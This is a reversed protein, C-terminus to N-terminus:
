WLCRQQSNHVHKRICSVTRMKQKNCSQYSKTGRPERTTHWYRWRMIWCERTTQTSGSVIWSAAWLIKISPTTMLVAAEVATLTLSTTSQPVRLLTNTPTEPMTNADDETLSPQSTRATIVAPTPLVKGAEGMTTAPLIMGAEKKTPASGRDGSRDEALDILLEAVQNGNNKKEVGMGKTPPTPPALMKCRNHSPQIPIEHNAPPELPSIICYWNACNHNGMSSCYYLAM